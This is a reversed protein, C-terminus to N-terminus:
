WIRAGPKFLFALFDCIAFGWLKWHSAAIRLFDAACFHDGFRMVAGTKRLPLSHLCSPM